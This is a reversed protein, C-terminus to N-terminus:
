GSDEPRAVRALGSLDILSRTRSASRARAPVRGRSRADGPHHARRRPARADHARRPAIADDDKKTDLKTGRLSAIAWDPMDTELHQEVLRRDVFAQTTPTARRRRSRVRAISAGARTPARPTIWAAMAIRDADLDKSQLLADLQGAARPSKLDDAGASRACSRPPSCRMPRARAPSPACCRRRSSRLGERDGVRHDRRAEALSGVIGEVRLPAHKDDTVRLRVRGSDELAGSASRRRRRHAPGRHRRGQAALRDLRAQRPRRREQRRRRRRLRSAVQGAAALRVVIPAATASSSRRPSSRAARRARTCSCTSRCAVRKRSRRRSARWAVEVTGWSYFTKPDGFAAADEIARTRRPRRARRRHRPLSRARVGGHPHRRRAGERRRGRHGRGLRAHPRARRGRRADRRRGVSRRRDGLARARGAGNTARDSETAILALSAIVDAETAKPALARRKQTEVLADPTEATFRGLADAATPGGSATTKTDGRAPGAGLLGLGLSASLAWLLLTGKTRTM